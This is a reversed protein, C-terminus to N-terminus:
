SKFEKLIEDFPKPKGIGYGQAYNVGIEKLMGKIVDNEVFEAITEMGMVQGIENISKVMAHDIPDEAIDKVFIGDIKLYDVPLNKLYAFSSLGSGFDDLAFRCGMDKLKSIFEMAISLNSIAATETIEFCIKSGNINSEQLQSIIFELIEPSSLTQGSLNISCFSIDALFDPNAALLTFANNIVWRDVQSILNYREAAPLFAGPPFLSGNVDIMRVLFEFHTNDSNSLPVIAQAYLTFLDGELAENIHTVWQMEGSRKALDVDDVRYVHIRNRGLEKAMYCASDADKLLQDFNSTSQTIPVLGISVGLKFTHGEWIFQYNQIASLISTAVRNADKLSCHEMLVGFEDGGLRALTDRKRVVKELVTTLQRLLEDGAVHGCTDNVIKFQDLDLFCVAYEDNDRRVTDFIRQVRREFERRNVLGTLADHSAHFNLQDETQKRLIAIAVINAMRQVFDLIDTDAEKTETFYVAFTGIVNKNLVSIPMSWCAKLGYKLPVDRGGEWLPDNAIDSVIVEKNLYAATGCSGVKPGITITKFTNRYEEPLNPASISTSINTNLDVLRIECIAGSVIKEIDICISDTIEQLSYEQAIMELYKNELSLLRATTKREIIESNLEETRLQVLEETRLARGTLMLLGMGFLGSIFIGSVLILWTSWSSYRAYFNNTPRYIIEFKRNGFTIHHSNDFHFDYFKQSTAKGQKYITKSNTKLEISIEIRALHDYINKIGRELQYVSTAFGQINNCDFKTKSLATKKYVPAYFVISLEEEKDQVLKLVDTATVQGTRCALEAGERAHHNYRIDFGYANENGSYPEVYKIVYYIDSAPSVQMGDNNNPIKITEGIDYEFSKRQENTVVEIWELAKIESYRSLKPRAYEIFESYTVNESSDYFEKLALATNMHTTISDELTHTFQHSNTNFVEELYKIEHLYTVKFISFTIFVLFLLPLAVTNIRQRWFYEPKGFFCLLLPTFVLIGISDGTWWTFWTISLEGTNNLISFGWMSIVAISASVTSSLLGALITMLLISREKLLAKDKKLIHHTIKAAVWIQCASGIAIIAALVLSSVTTDISTTDLFHSSELIFSGIFVGPLVRYGFILVTALAIGSAPWIAAANSPPVVFLLLGVYGGLLYATAVIFNPAIYKSFM